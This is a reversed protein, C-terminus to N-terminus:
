LSFPVTTFSPDLRALAGGDLVRVNTFGMDKLLKGGLAGIPGLVWTTIAPVEAYAESAMQNFTRAM